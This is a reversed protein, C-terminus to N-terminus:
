LDSMEPSDGGTLAARAENARRVRDEYFEHQGRIIPEARALLEHISLLRRIIESFPERPRQLLLLAQYVDESVKISKSM